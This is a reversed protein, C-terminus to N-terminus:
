TENCVKVVAIIEQNSVEFTASIHDALERDSNVIVTYLRKNDPDRKTIQYM